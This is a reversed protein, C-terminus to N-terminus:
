SFSHVFLSITCSSTLGNIETSCLIFVSLPRSTTHTGFSLAPYALLICPRSSTRSLEDAGLLRCATGSRFPYHFSHFDMWPRCPHWGPHTSSSACVLFTFCALISLFAPEPYLGSASTPASRSALRNQRVFTDGLPHTFPSHCPVEGRYRVIMPSHRCLCPTNREGSGEM